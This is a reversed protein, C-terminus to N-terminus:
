FSRQFKKKLSLFDKPRKLNEISGNDIKIELFSPGKSKLFSKMINNINKKNSIKFYNRYGAAKILNKINDIEINTTQGGVSEHSYNNLLIHKFNKQKDKRYKHNVRSADFFIRRWRSM